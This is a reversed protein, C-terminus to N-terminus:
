RLYVRSWLALVHISAVDAKWGGIELGMGLESERNGHGRTQNARMRVFILRDDGKSTSWDDIADFIGVMCPNTVVELDAGEKGRSSRVM